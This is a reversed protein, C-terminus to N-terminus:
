SAPKIFTNETNETENVHLSSRLSHNTWGYARRLAHLYCGHTCTAGMSRMASKRMLTTASKQQLVGATMLGTEAVPLLLGFACHGLENTQKGSAGRWADAMLFAKRAELCARFKALLPTPLCPAAASIAVEVGGFYTAKSSFEPSPECVWRSEDVKRAAQRSEDVRALWVRVRPPAWCFGYGPAVM